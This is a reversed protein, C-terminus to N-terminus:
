HRHVHNHLTARHPRFEALFRCSLPLSGTLWALALLRTSSSNMRNPPVEWCSRTHEDVALVHTKGNWLSLFGETRVAKQLCDFAGRFYLGRGSADVPQNM